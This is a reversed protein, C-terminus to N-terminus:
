AEDILRRLEGAEDFPVITEDFGSAILEVYNDHGKVVYHHFATKERRSEPYLKQYEVSLEVLWHSNEVEYICSRLHSVTKYPMFEWRTGRVAWARHFSLRCLYNAPEVNTIWCGFYICCESRSHHLVVDGQPDQWVKLPIPLAQESLAAMTLFEFHQSPLEKSIRSWVLSNSNASRFSLAM